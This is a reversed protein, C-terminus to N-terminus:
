VPAVPGGGLARSGPARRADRGEITANELIARLARPDIDIRSVNLNLITQKATARIIPYSTARGGGIRHHNFFVRELIATRSDIPTGGTGRGRGRGQYAIINERITITSYVSRTQGLRM